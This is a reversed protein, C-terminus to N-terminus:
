SYAGKIIMLLEHYHPTHYSGKDLFDELSRRRADVQADNLTFPRKGPLKPFIFDSFQRKLQM